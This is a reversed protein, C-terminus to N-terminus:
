MGQVLSLVYRGAWVLIGLAMFTAALWAYTEVDDMTNNFEISNGIRMDDIVDIFSGLLIALIFVTLVAGILVKAAGQAAM